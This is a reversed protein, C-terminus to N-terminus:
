AFTGSAAVSFQYASGDYWYAYVLYSRGNLAAYDGTFILNARNFNNLWTTNIDVVKANLAGATGKKNSRGLKGAITQLQAATPATMASGVDNQYFVLIGTDSATAREYPEGQFRVLNENYFTGVGEGTFEKSLVTRDIMPAFTGTVTSRPTVAFHPYIDMDEWIVMGFNTQYSLLTGGDAATYWGQFYPKGQGTYHAVMTSINDDSVELVTGYPATLVQTNSPTYHATATYSKAGLTVGTITLTFDATKTANTYSFTMNQDWLAIESSTPALSVIDDRRNDANPTKANSIEAPTMEITSAVTYYKTGGERGTYAYKYIAKAKYVAYFTIDANFSPTFDLDDSLFSWEDSEEDYTYWGYFNEPDDASAHLTLPDDMADWLPIEYSDYGNYLGATLATEGATAERDNSGTYSILATGLGSISPTGQGYISSDSYVAIQVDATVKKTDVTAYWQGSYRTTSGYDVPTDYCIKVSKDQYPLGRSELLSAVYSLGDQQDAFGASLTDFLYAGTADYVYWHVSYNGSYNNVLPYTYVASGGKAGNNTTHYFKSSEYWADGQAIIYYTATSETELEKGTLDMHKTGDYNTLYEWSYNGLTRNTKLTAYAVNSTKTNGDKLAFQILTNVGVHSDSNMYLSVPERYDFTQVNDGSSPNYGAPVTTGSGDTITSAATFWTANYYNSFTIGTLAPIAKNNNAEYLNAYWSKGDDSPIMLQGPYAGYIPTDTGSWAYMAVMRGWIEKNLDSTRVNITINANVNEFIPCIYCDGTPKITATYTNTSKTIDDGKVAYATKSNIDYVVFAAVKYTASNTNKAITISGNKTKIQYHKVTEHTPSWGGGEPGGITTSPGATVTPYTNTTLIGNYGGSIYTNIWQFTSNASIGTNSSRPYFYVYISAGYGNSVNTSTLKFYGAGNTYANFFTDWSANNDWGAEHGFTLDTNNNQFSKGSYQDGCTQSWFTLQGSGTAMDYCRFYTYAGTAPANPFEFYYRGEVLGTDPNVWSPDYEMEYRNDWSSGSYTIEKTTANQTFGGGIFFCRTAVAWIRINKEPTLTYTLETSLRPKTFDPATADVASQYWGLFMYYDGWSSNWAFTYRVTSGANVKTGTTNNAVSPTTTITGLKPNGGAADILTTFGENPSAMCKSGVGVMYSTVVNLEVYINYNPMTGNFVILNSPSTSTAPSAGTAAIVSGDTIPEAEIKNGSADAKYFAINAKTITNTSTTSTKANVKLASITEGIDYYNDANESTVEIKKTDSFFIRFKTALELDINRYNQSAPLTVVHTNQDVNGKYNSKEDGIVTTVLAGAAHRVAETGAPLVEDNYYNADAFLTTDAEYTYDWDDDSGNGAGVDVGHDYVNHDQDETTYRRDNNFFVGRIAESSSLASYYLKVTDGALMQLKNGENFTGTTSVTTGEGDTDASYVYTYTARTTSEPTTVVVRSPPAAVKHFSSPGDDVWSSYVTIYYIKKYLAYYYTEIGASMNYVNSLDTDDPDYNAAATTQSSSSIMWGMFKYGAVASTSVTFEDGGTVSYTGAGSLTPTFGDELTANAVSYGTGDIDLMKGVTVTRNALVFNARVEANATTMGTTGDTKIYVTTPQPNESGTYLTNCAADTYIKIHSANAGHKSWGSFAYNGGGTVVSVATGKTAIGIGSLSDITTGGANTIHGGDDSAEGDTYPNLAIGATIEAYTVTFTQNSSINITGTWHTTSPQPATPTWGTGTVSSITYGAPATIDVSTNTSTSVYKAGTWSNGGLTVTGTAGSQSLTAQPKIKFRAYYTHTGDVTYSFTDNASTTTANALNTNSTNVDSYFGQFEYNTAPVAIAKFTSTLAPSKSNANTSNSYSDVTTHTTSNIAYSTYKMSGGTNSAVYASGNYTAVTFTQTKNYYANPANSSFAAAITAGKTANSGITFPFTYASNNLSVDASSYIASYHTVSSEKFIDIFTKNVSSTYSSLASSSGVFAIYKGDGFGSGDNLLCGVLKTNSLKTMPYAKIWTDHGIVLYIYSANWNPATNNFFVKGYRSEHGSVGSLKAQAYIKYYANTSPDNKVNWIKKTSSTYYCMLYHSGGYNDGMNNDNGGQWYISSGGDGFDNAIDGSGFEATGYNTSTTIRFYTSTDSVAVYYFDDGLSKLKWTASNYSGSSNWGERDGHYYLNADAGTDAVDAEAGTDAVDAPAGTDAQDVTAAITTAITGFLMVVALVLATLAKFIFSCRSKM